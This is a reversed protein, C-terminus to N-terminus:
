KLTRLLVTIVNFPAREKEGNHSSYLSASTRMDIRVECVCAGRVCSGHGSCDSPCRGPSEETMKMLLYNM